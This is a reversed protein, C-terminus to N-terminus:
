AAESTMVIPELLAIAQRIRSTDRGYNIATVLEMQLQALAASIAQTDM